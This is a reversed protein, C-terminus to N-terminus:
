IQMEIRRLKYKFKIDKKQGEMEKEVDERRQTVGEEM